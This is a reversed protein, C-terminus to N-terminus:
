KALETLARRYTKMAREAIKMGREFTEDPSDTKAWVAGSVFTGGLCASGQPNVIEYGRERMVEGVLAGCFQKARDREEDPLDAIIPEVEWSIAVVAPIGLRSLLEYGYVHEPQRVIAELERGYPTERYTEFSTNM